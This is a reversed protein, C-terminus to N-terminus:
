LMLRSWLTLNEDSFFKKYHHVTSKSSSTWNISSTLASIQSELKSKWEPETARIFQSFLGGYIGLSTVMVESPSLRKGLIGSLPVRLKKQRKLIGHFKLAWSDAMKVISYLETAIERSKISLRLRMEQDDIMDHLLKVFETFNRAIFGTEGNKIMYSEMPNNFAIVPVGFIMAEQIAQDCTGYHNRALPYCFIDFSNLQRFKEEESVFGLYEVRASSSVKNMNLFFDTPPGIVTVHVDRSEIEALIKFFDGSLKTQDLNGIYGIKIKKSKDHKVKLRPTSLSRISEYGCTSWITDFTMGTSNKYAEICPVFNSLPTTFIFEDPLELIYECIINPSHLGSIHCWILMRNPPLQSNILLDQLLPHNWWHVVVIDCSEVERLLETQNQYMNEHCTVGIRGLFEKSSSNIDELSILSHTRQFANKSEHLLYARLVAGVGGGMHPTIHLIKM